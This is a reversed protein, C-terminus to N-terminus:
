NSGRKIDYVHYETGEDPIRVSDKSLIGNEYIYFYEVLGVGGDVSSTQYILQENFNFKYTLQEEEILNGMKDYTLNAILTAHTEEDFSDERLFPFKDKDSRFKFKSKKSLRGNEYLNEEEVRDNVGYKFRKVIAGDFSQHCDKRYENAIRNDQYDYKFDDCITGDPTYQIWKILHGKEDFHREEEKKIKKWSANSTWKIQSRITNDESSMSVSATLVM